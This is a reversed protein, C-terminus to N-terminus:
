SAQAILGNLKAIQTDIWRLRELQLALMERHKPEPRGTSLM